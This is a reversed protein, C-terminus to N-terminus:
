WCDPANSHSRCEGLPLPPVVTATATPVPPPRFLGPPPSPPTPLFGRLHQYLGADAQATWTGLYRGTAPDLDVYSSGYAVQLRVRDPEWLTVCIAEHLLVPEGGIEVESGRTEDCLAWREGDRPPPWGGPPPVLERHAIAVAGTESAQVELRFGEHELRPALSPGGATADFPPGYVPPSSERWFYGLPEENWRLYALHERMWAALAHPSTQSVSICSSTTCGIGGGGGDAPFPLPEGYVNVIELTFSREAFRLKVIPSHPYDAWTWVQVSEGEERVLRWGATPMTERYWRVVAAQSAGEFRYPHGPLNFATASPYRPPIHRGRENSPLHLLPLVPRVIVEHIVGDVLFWRYPEGTWNAARLAEQAREGTLHGVLDRPWPEIRAISDRVAAPAHTEHTQVVVETPRMAPANDPLASWATQYIRRLTVAVEPGPDWEAPIPSPGFGYAYVTRRGREGDVAVITSPVDDCICLDYRDDPLDYLAAASARVQGLASPALRTERIVLDYSNVYGWFVVHGSEFLTLKPIGAGGMMGGVVSIQLIVPDAVTTPVACAGIIPAAMALLVALWFTHHRM